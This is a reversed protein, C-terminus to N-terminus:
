YVAADRSGKLALSSFISLAKDTSGVYYEKLGEMYVGEEGAIQEQASASLAGSLLLIVSISCAGTIHRFNIVNSM